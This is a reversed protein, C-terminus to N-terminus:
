VTSAILSVARLGRQYNASKQPSLKMLEQIELAFFQVSELWAIAHLGIYFNSHRPYKETKKNVRGIYKALGQNKLIEGSLTAQSYALTILLILTMLCRDSVKTGELNYGGSKFDRFMEEIGFRKQYSQLAEDLDNLNTLIFWAEEATLGRYKRKWKYVVNAGSFGKTKTVKVGQFYLSFGPRFGLSHLQLWIDNEVEIYCSRKLRLCFYTEEQKQM